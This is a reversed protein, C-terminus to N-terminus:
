GPPIEWGNLEKENKLKANDPKDFLRSADYTFHHLQPTKPLARVAHETLDGANEYGRSRFFGRLFFNRKLAQM